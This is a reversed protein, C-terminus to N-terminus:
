NIRYMGSITFDIKYWPFTEPRSAMTRALLCQTAPRQSSEALLGGCLVLYVFGPPGLGLNSSHAVHVASGGREVKMTKSMVSMM